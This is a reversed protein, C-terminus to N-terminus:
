DAESVARRLLLAMNRALNYNIFCNFRLTASAEGKLSLHQVFYLPSTINGTQLQRALISPLV